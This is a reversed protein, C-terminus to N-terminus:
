WRYKPGMWEGWHMITAVLCSSKGLQTCRHDLLSFIDIQMTWNWFIVLYISVTSLYNALMKLLRFSVFQDKTPLILTPLILRLGVLDRLLDTSSNLYKLSVQLPDLRLPYWAPMNSPSPATLTFRSACSAWSQFIGWVQCDSRLLRTSFCLHSIFILFFSPPFHSKLLAPRGTVIPTRSSQLGHFSHITLTSM